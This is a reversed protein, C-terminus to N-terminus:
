LRGVFGRRPRFISANDFRMAPIVRAVRVLWPLAVMVLCRRRLVGLVLADSAMARLRAHRLMLELGVNMPAVFCFARALPRALSTGLHRMARLPGAVRHLTRGCSMCEYAGRTSMIAHVDASRQSNNEDIHM